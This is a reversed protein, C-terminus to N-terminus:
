DGGFPLEYVYEGDVPLVHMEFDKSNMVIARGNELPVAICLPEDDVVVEALLHPTGNLIFVDGLGMDAVPMTLKCVERVKM